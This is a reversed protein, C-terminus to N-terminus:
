YRVFEYQSPRPVHFPEETITSSQVLPSAESNSPGSFYLVLYTIAYQAVGRAQFECLKQVLACMGDRQPSEKM